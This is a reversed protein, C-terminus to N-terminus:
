ATTLVKLDAPGKQILELAKLLTARPTNIKLIEPLDRLLSLNGLVAARFDPWGGKPAHYRLFAKSSGVVAAGAKLNVYYGLHYVADRWEGGAAPALEYEDEGAPVLTLQVAGLVANAVKLVVRRYTEIDPNLGEKQVEGRTPLELLELVDKLSM